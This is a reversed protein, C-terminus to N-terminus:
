ASAAAAQRSKKKTSTAADTKNEGSVKELGLQEATHDMAKEAIANPLQQQRESHTMNRTEVITGLDDRVVHVKGAKYDHWEVCDVERFERKEQVVKHLQVRKLKAQTERAKFDSLWQEKEAILDAEATMAAALAEGRELRETFSLDCVLMRDTLEAMPVANFLLETHTKTMLPNGKM